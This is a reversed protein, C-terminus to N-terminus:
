IDAAEFHRLILAHQGDGIMLMQLLSRVLASLCKYLSFMFIPNLSYIYSLRDISENRQTTSYLQKIKNKKEKEIV